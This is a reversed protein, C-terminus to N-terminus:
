ASIARSPHASRLPSAAGLCGIQQPAPGLKLRPSNTRVSSSHQGVTAGVFGIVFDSRIGA